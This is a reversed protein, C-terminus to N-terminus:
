TEDYQRDEPRVGMENPSNSKSPHPKPSPSITMGAEGDVEMMADDDNTQASFVNETSTPDPPALHREIDRIARLISEPPAVGPSLHSEVESRNVVAGKAVAALWDDHPYRRSLADAIGAGDLKDLDQQPLVSEPITM